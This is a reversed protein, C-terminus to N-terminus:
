AFIDNERERRWSAFALVARHLASELHLGFRRRRIRWLSLRHLPYAALKWPWRSLHRRYRYALFTTLYVKGALAPEGLWPLRIRFHDHRAWEALSRPPVFGRALAEKYLATGPLPVFSQVQIEAAPQLRHLEEALDLCRDLGGGAGQSPLGAILSYVASLSSTGMAELGERVEAPRYGKVVTELVGADDSELGFYAWRCGSVQLLRLTEDDIMNIRLNGIWTFGGERLATLYRPFDPREGGFLTDDYIDLDRVGLRRLAALEGVVKAVSKVRVSGHFDPSYCFACSYPCGRSVECGTSERISGRELHRRLLEAAKGQYVFPLSELDPPRRESTRRLRGEDKYVIGAVSGLDRAAHLELLTEEGEGLVVCDVFDEGLVTEPLMTPFVGGWVILSDPSFRRAARSVRAASVLQYGGIVSCGVIRPGRALLRRLDQPSDIREDYYEVEVGHEELYTGLCLVSLPAHADYSFPMNAPYCLLVFDGSQAESM